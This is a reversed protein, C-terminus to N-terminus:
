LREAPDLEELAADDSVPRPQGRMRPVRAIFALAIAGLLVLAIPIWPLARYDFLGIGSIVLSTEHGFPDRATISVDTPWPPLDVSTSFRGDEDVDVRKGGLEVAAYPVTSGAITVSTSGFQTDAHAVLAPADEVLQLRWTSVYAHGAPTSVTLRVPALDDGTAGSQPGVAVDLAGSEGVVNPAGPDGGAVSVYVRSGPPAHVEAVLGGVSVGTVGTALAVGGDTPPEYSGGNGEPKASEAFPALTVATGALMVPPDLSGGVPDLTRGGHAIALTERARGVLGIPAAGPLAGFAAARDGFFPSPLLRGAVIAAPEGGRGGPLPGVYPPTATHVLVQAAQSIEIPGGTIPQLSPLQLVHVADHDPRNVILCPRGAFEIVGILWDDPALPRSAAPPSPLRGRPWAMVGLGDTPNLVAIGRRSPGLPVARADYVVIDSDETVLSDGRGLGVRFLHFNSASSIFGLEDGPVGDSDGLVFPSSPSGVPLVTATPRGFHRDAWRFVRAAVPTRPSDLPEVSRTAVLEDTGDGDLDIAYVSDAVGDPEAVSNLRISNGAIELDELLLCCEDPDDPESFDPQRVLTVRDEGDVRRVLLRVPRGVYALEAQGATGPVASAPAAMLRWGDGGDSWAEIWIAGDDPGVLRILDRVGDGDLDAAVAQLTALDDPLVITGPEDPVRTVALPTRPPLASGGAVLAAVLAVLAVTLM